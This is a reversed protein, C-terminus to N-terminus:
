DDWEDRLQQQITLGDKTNLMGKTQNLLETLSYKKRSEVKKKYQEIAQRIIETKSTKNLKAQNTLWINSEQPISIITRQKNM